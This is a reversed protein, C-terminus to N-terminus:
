PKPTSAPAPEDAADLLFAVDEQLVVPLPQQAEWGGMRRRLQIACWALAGLGTALFLGGLLTPRELRFPLGGSSVGSPNSSKLWPLPQPPLVTCRDTQVKLRKLSPVFGVSTYPWFREGYVKCIETSSQLYRLVRGSECAVFNDTEYWNGLESVQVPPKLNRGVQNVYAELAKCNRAFPLAM